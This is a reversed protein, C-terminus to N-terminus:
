DGGHFRTPNWGLAEFLPAIFSACTQRENLRQRAAPGLGQFRAVLEAIKGRAEVQTTMM